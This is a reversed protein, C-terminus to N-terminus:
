QKGGGAPGGGPVDWGHPVDHFWEDYKEKQGRLPYRSGPQRPYLILYYLEGRGALNARDQEILQLARAQTGVDVRDPDLYFLAGTKPDIQLVRIRLRQQLAKQREQRLRELEDRQDKPMEAKQQRLRELEAELERLRAAEAAELGDAPEGPRQVMPMLLFICFLLIMVDILPIFFRTVSRRPLQIM